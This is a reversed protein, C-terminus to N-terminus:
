GFVGGLPNTDQLWQFEQLFFASVFGNGQLACNAHFIAAHLRVRRDQVPHVGEKKMDDVDVRLGEPHNGGDGMIQAAVSLRQDAVHVVVVEGVRVIVGEVGGQFFVLPKASLDNPAEVRDRYRSLNQLLLYGGHIGIDNDHGVIISGFFNGKRAPPFL